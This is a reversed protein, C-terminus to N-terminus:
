YKQPCRISLEKTTSLTKTQCVWFDHDLGPVQNAQGWVGGSGMVQGGYVDLRQGWSPPRSWLLLYKLSQKINTMDFLAARRMIEDFVFPTVRLIDIGREHPLVDKVFYYLHGTALGMVNILINHGMLLDLFILAFPFQYAQVRFGFIRCEAFPERRSWYYIIAMVMAPALVPRGTPWFMILSLTDLSLSQFALFCLYAGPSTNFMENTELKASFTVLFYMHMVWGISFTGAFFYDSILRWAQAKWVVKTWDLMVHYPSLLSLSCLLTLLFSVTVSFRTLPPLSRYWAEPSSTDEM